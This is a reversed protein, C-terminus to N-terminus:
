GTFIGKTYANNVTGAYEIAAKDLETGSSEGLRNALDHLVQARLASDHFALLKPDTPIPAPSNPRYEVPIDFVPAKKVRRAVEEDVTRGKFHKGALGDVHGLAARSADSGVLRGVSGEPSLAVPANYHDFGNPGSLDALQSTLGRVEAVSVRRTEATPARGVRSVGGPGSAATSEHGLSNVSAPGTARRAPSYRAEGGAFALRRGNRGTRGEQPAGQGATFTERTQKM